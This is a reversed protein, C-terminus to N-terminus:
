VFPVAFAHYLMIIRGSRSIEYNELDIPLLPKGFVKVIPESFSGLFLVFAFEMAIIVGIMGFNTNLLQIFRSIRNREINGESTMWHLDFKNNEKFYSYQHSFM